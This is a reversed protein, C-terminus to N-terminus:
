AYLSPHQSKIQKDWTTTFELRNHLDQVNTNPENDEEQLAEGDEFYGVFIEDEENDENPEPESWDSVTIGGDTEDTDSLNQGAYEFSELCYEYSQDKSKQKLHERILRREYRERERREIRESEDESSNTYSYSKTTHKFARNCECSTTGLPGNCTESRSTGRTFNSEVNHNKQNNEYMLSKTEMKSIQNENIHSMHNNSQYFPKTHLKFARLGLTTGYDRVTESQHIFNPPSKSRDFGRLTHNFKLSPKVVFDSVEAREMMEFMQYWEQDMEQGGNSEMGQDVASTGISAQKVIGFDDQGKGVCSGHSGNRIRQGVKTENRSSTPARDNMAKSRAVEPEVNAVDIRLM